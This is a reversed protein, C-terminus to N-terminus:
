KVWLMNGNTADYKAILMDPNSNISNSDHYLTTSGFNVSDSYFKATLYINGAGDMVISNGDDHKNGGTSAAWMVNGTADYKAVFIDEYGIATLSITGFLKTGYYNGIVYLNGINDTTMGNGKGNLLQAWIVTGTPTYKVIFGTSSGSGTLTTSGFTISGIFEGTVFVNGNLDTTIANSNDSNTGGASKAWFCNQANSITSILVLLILTFKKVM